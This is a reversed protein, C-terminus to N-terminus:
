KSHSFFATRLRRDCDQRFGLHGNVHRNEHNGRLLFINSPYLIKLSFLLGLLELSSNGRDVFDGLFVYQNYALDGLELDALPCGYGKFFSLLDSTQGHLSGFIKLPLFESLNVVVDECAHIKLIAPVLEDLQSRTIQLGNM